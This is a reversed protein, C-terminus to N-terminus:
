FDDPEDPARQLVLTMLHGDAGVTGVPQAAGDRVPGVEDHEVQEHGTHVALRHEAAHEGLVGVLLHEHEGRGRVDVGADLAELPSRHVEEGLRERHALEDDPDPGSQLDGNGVAGVVDYPHARERQVHSAALQEGAPLRALERMALEQQQQEQHAPCACGTRPLLQQRLDPAVVEVRPGVHHVGAHRPQTALQWSVDNVRHAIDTVLDLGGSATAAGGGAGDRRRLILPATSTSEASAANATTISAAITAIGPSSVIGYWRINRATVSTYPKRTHGMPGVTSTTPAM